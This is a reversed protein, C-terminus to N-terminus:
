KELYLPFCENAELFGQQQNATEVLYFGKRVDLKKVPSGASLFAQGPSDPTPALRLVADPKAVITWKHFDWSQFASFGAFLFAIASLFLSVKNAPFSAVPHLLFGLSFLFIWFSITAIIGWTQLSVLNAPSSLSPLPSDIELSKSILRLNAQASTHNPNLRLTELFHFAAAPYQKLKAHATALNYHLNDSESTQLISEYAKVADEFRDEAFAVNGKSFLEEHSSSALLESGVISFLLILIFRM